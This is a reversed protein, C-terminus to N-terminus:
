LLLADYHTAICQMLPEVIARCKSPVRARANRLLSTVISRCLNSCSSRRRRHQNSALLASQSKNCVLLYNKLDCGHCQNCHAQCACTQIAVCRICHCYNCSIRIFRNSRLALPLMRRCGTLALWHTTQSNVTMCCCLRWRVQKSCRSKSRLATGEQSDSQMVTFVREMDSPQWQIHLFDLMKPLVEAPKSVIDEYRIARM